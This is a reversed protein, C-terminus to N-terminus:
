LNVVSPCGLAALVAKGGQTDTLPKELEDLNEAILVRHLADRGRFASRVQEMVFYGSNTKFVKIRGGDASQQDVMLNGYFQYDPGDPNAVLHQTSDTDKGSTMSM